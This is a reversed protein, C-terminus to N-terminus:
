TKIQVHRKYRALNVNPDYGTVDHQENLVEAADRGLKGLGIFGVKM